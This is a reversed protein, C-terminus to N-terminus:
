NCVCEFLHKLEMRILIERVERAPKLFPSCTHVIRNREFSKECKKQLLIIKLDHRFVRELCHMKVCVAEMDAKEHWGRLSLSSVLFPRDYLIDFIKREPAIKQM